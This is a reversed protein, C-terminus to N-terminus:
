RRAIVMFEPDDLGVTFTERKAFAGPEVGRVDTVTFGHRLLENVADRVTYATTWLDFTHRTSDPGRVDAHQHHVGNIVDYADGDVLHRAAFLAHFFNAAFMGGPKLVRAVGALLADDHAPSIGLAGQHLSVARDLSAPQIKDHLMTAADGVHFTVEAADPHQKGAAILAESVDIATVDVGLSAFSRAHRGTGCGLDVLTLGPALQLADWLWTVEHDTHQAFANREYTAGQFTGIPTYFSPMQPGPLEPRDVPRDRHDRWAAPFSVRQGQTDGVM